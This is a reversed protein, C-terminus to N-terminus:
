LLFYATLASRVSEIRFYFMLPLLILMLERSFFKDLSQIKEVVQLFWCLFPVAAVGNLDEVVSVLVVCIVFVGSFVAVFVLVVEFIEWV